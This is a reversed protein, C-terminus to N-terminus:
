WPPSAARRRDGRDDDRRRGPSASCSPRSSARSRRPSSWGLTAQMRTAGLALSGQRLAQPVASMADESLSAVTPVIMIGMVLGASLVNFTGVPLGLGTRAAPGPDRVAARLLRLRRDPHRRPDRPDAQASKRARDPRVGLPLDGRRPRRSPSSCPSAPQDVPHGDVLPLVGYAPPEFRPAWSPAPSSTPSRSRDPLVRDRARPAAVVIGITTVVSLSRPRSCAARHGDRGAHRSAGCPSDGASRGPDVPATEAHDTSVTCAPGRPDTTPGGPLRDFASGPTKATKRQEANLPIFLAEEAIQADNDVYFDVFATVEPERDHVGQVPLHVAPPGAPHLHRGPRDRREARRLRRRQRDRRGEARRREGRLLLLRLLRPRGQLGRRGPRHRQRGRQANYDTRSAGEEGNIEDTFYDFTGSDTGAGFLELEVDPFSPDVQNWNTITSSGPEWIKKLQEVTLCKVWNNETNVM